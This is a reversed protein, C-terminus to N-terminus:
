NSWEEELPLHGHRIIGNDISVIRFEIEPPMPTAVTRAERIATAMFEVDDALALEGPDCEDDIDGRERIGRLKNELAFEAQRRVHDCVGYFM